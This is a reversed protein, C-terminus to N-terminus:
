GGYNGVHGNWISRIRKSYVWSQKRKQNRVTKVRVAVAAAATAATAATATAITEDDDYVM